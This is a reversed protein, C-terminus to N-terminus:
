SKLTNQYTKIQPNSALSTSRGEGANGYGLKKIEGMLKLNQNSNKRWFEDLEHEPLEPDVLASQGAQAGRVTRGGASLFIHKMTKLM